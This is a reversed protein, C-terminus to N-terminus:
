DRTSTSTSTPPFPPSASRLLAKLKEHTEVLQEPNVDRLFLFYQVLFSVFAPWAGPQDGDSQPLSAECKQELAKSQDQPFSQRLENALTHYIPPLPPEIALFDQLKPGDRTRLIQAIGPLFQDLTPTSM